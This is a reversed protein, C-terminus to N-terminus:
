LSRFTAKRPVLDVLQPKVGAARRPAVRVTQRMSCGRCTLVTCFNINYSMPSLRTTISHLISLRRHIINCFILETIHAPYSLRYLLLSRAPRDPISDRHPRAKGGTWVPGPGWGAEQLIPVPDKGPTFHPRPTSSVV